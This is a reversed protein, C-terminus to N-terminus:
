LFPLESVSAQAILVHVFPESKERSSRYSKLLAPSFRQIRLESDIYRKRCLIDSVVNDDAFVVGNLADLIPKVVNDVDPVNRSRRAVFYSITVMLDEFSLVDGNLADTAANRVEIQWRSKRGTAQQSVPMGSIVFELGM